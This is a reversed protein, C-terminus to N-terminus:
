IITNIFDFDGRNLMTANIWPLFGLFYNGPAFGWISVDASVLKNPGISKKIDALFHSYHTARKPSIIGLKWYKGNQFEYDVEIGDVGCEHVATGISNMYNERKYKMSSNWLIDGVNVNPGWQVKVNHRHALDLVNQFQYDTKNCFALLSSRSKILSHLIYIVFKAPMASILDTSSFGGMAAIANSLPMFIKIGSSPIM